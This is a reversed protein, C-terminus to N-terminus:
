LKTRRLCVEVRRNNAANGTAVPQREGKSDTRWLLARQANPKLLSLQKRLESIVTAARKAGLDQNYDETGSSDTHGTAIIVNIKKNLINRALEKLQAKHRNKLQFSNFAFRAITTCGKGPKGCTHCIGLPKIPVSPIQKAANGDYNVTNEPFSLPDNITSAHGSCSKCSCPAATYNGPQRYHQYQTANAITGAKTPIAVQTIAPPRNNGRYYIGTNATGGPVYNGRGRNLFKQPVTSGSASNYRYPVGYKNFAAKQLPATTLRNGGWNQVQRSIAPIVQYGRTQMTYNGEPRKLTPKISTSILPAQLPRKFSVKNAAYGLPKPSVMNRSQISGTSQLPRSTNQMPRGVMKGSSNKLSSPWGTVPVIPKIAAGVGPFGNIIPKNKVGMNMNQGSTNKTASPWGTIPTNSKPVPKQAAVGAKPSINQVPRGIAQQRPNSIPRATTPAMPNHSNEYLM